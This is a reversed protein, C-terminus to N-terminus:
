VPTAFSLIAFLFREASRKVPVLDCQSFRNHIGAYDTVCFKVQTKVCGDSDTTGLTVDSSMLGWECRLRVPDSRSSDRM